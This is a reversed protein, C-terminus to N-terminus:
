NGWKITLPSFRNTLHPLALISSTFYILNSLLALLASLFALRQLHPRFHHKRPVLAYATTNSTLVKPTSPTPLITADIINLQQDRVAITPASSTLPESIPVKDPSLLSRHNQHHHHCQSLDPSITVVVEGTTSTERSSLTYACCPDDPANLAELYTLIAASLFMASAIFNTLGGGYESESHFSLHPAIVPM